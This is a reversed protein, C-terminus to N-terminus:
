WSAGSCVSVSVGTRTWTSGAFLPGIRSTIAAEPTTVAAGPASSTTVAGSAARMASSGRASPSFTRGPSRSTRKSIGESVAPAAELRAAISCAWARTSFAL